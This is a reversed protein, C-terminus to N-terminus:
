TSINPLDRAWDQPLYQPHMTAVFHARWREVFAELDTIKLVVKYGHSIRIKEKKISSLFEECTQSNWALYTDIEGKLIIKRKHPMTSGFQRLSYIKGLITTREPDLRFSLPVGFEKSILRRLEEAKEEYEEHHDRCLMLVDRMNRSKMSEPFNRRYCIPVVHHKTLGSKKGCVVCENKRHLMDRYSAGPGGPEFLLRFRPPDQNVLEALNKKLYWVMRKKSVVCM